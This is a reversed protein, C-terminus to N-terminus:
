ITYEGRTCTVKAESVAWEGSTDSRTRKSPTRHNKAGSGTGQSLAWGNEMGGYEGNSAVWDDRVTTGKSVSVTQEDRLLACEGKVESGRGQLPDSRDRTSREKGKSTASGGKMAWGVLADNQKGITSAWARWVESEQIRSAVSEDRLGNGRGNEAVLIDQLESNKERSTFSVDQSGRKKGKSTLLGNPALSGNERLGAREGKLYTAAVLKDQAGNYKGKLAVFEGSLGTNKRKLVTWEGLAEDQSESRTVKRADSEDRPVCKKGKWAILENQSESNKGTSVASEGKTGSRTAMLSVLKGDKRHSGNGKDMLAVAEGSTGSCNAKLESSENKTGSKQGTWATAEGKTDSSKGKSLKILGTVEDNMSSFKGMPIASESKMNCANGALSAMGGKADSNTGKSSTVEGKTWSSSGKPAASESKTGGSRAWTSMAWDDYTDACGTSKATCHTGEQGGDAGAYIKKRLCRMSTATKGDKWDVSSMGAGREEGGSHSATVDGKGKGADHEHHRAGGVWRADMPNGQEVLETEDWWDSEKGRLGEYQGYKARHFKTVGGMHLTNHDSSGKSSRKQVANWQGENWESVWGSARWANAERHRTMKEFARRAHEEKHLHLIRWRVVANKNEVDQMPGRNIVNRQQDARLAQFIEAVDENLEHEAVFADIEEQDLPKSYARVAEADEKMIPAVPRLETLSFGAIELLPKEYEWLFPEEYFDPCTNRLFKQLTPVDHRAPDKDRLNEDALFVTWRRKWEAVLRQGSKVINALEISLVSTKKTAM